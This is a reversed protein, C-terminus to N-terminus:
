ETKISQVPNVTAAKWSQWAVSFFAIVVACVGAFMFTSANFDIRYKFDELWKNVFYYAIPSGVVFAIAVLIMFDKSLLIIIDQISAGLVKRVGIEKTRREATYTALGLLGLCCIFLAVSAFFTSLKGEVQEGFYMDNYERNLFEYEFPTYPQYKASLTRMTEIATQLPTNRGVNDEAQVGGVVGSKMRVYVLGSVSDPTNLKIMLPEIGNKMSHLHYDKIVGIIEGPTNNGWKIQQRLPEKALGMAKVAAENFIYNNTDLVADKRYTRGDLLTLGLTEILDYGGWVQYVTLREDPKKGPWELAWTDSGVNIPSIQSYAANEVLPSQKLEARFAEWKNHSMQGLTMTLIHDKEVGINKTRVYEMQRYMVAMAIIFVIAVSFEFVVLVRRFLLAGKGSKTTGKLIAVVNFRSLVLAPYLGALLGTCLTVLIIGAWFVPVTYPILVAPRLSAWMVSRLLPMTLEAFLLAFPLAMFATIVSEILVQRFIMSRTAGVSKRVGVERSRSMSRAASLNMFNIAAIGLVLLAIITFNRIQEIRGGVPKGNEFRNWLYQDKITQFSLTQKVGVTKIKDELLHELKSQLAAIEAGPRLLIYTNPWNNDWQNQNRQYFTITYDARVAMNFYVQSTRPPDAVIGSVVAQLNNDLLIVKGMPNEDGFIRKATSETLVVSSKNVLCTTPDGALFQFSFMQTFNEDTCLVRTVNIPPKDTYRVAFDSQFIITAKEVEPIESKLYLNLAVSNSFTTIPSKGQTTITRMVRFLRDENVHGRNFSWQVYVWTAILICVALGLALGLINLGAFFKNRLLNRWATKFTTQIM